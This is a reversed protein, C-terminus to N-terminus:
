KDASTFAEGAKVPYGLLFDKVAMRKKGEPQVELIKLLGRGTQVYFADRDVRVITGPQADKETVPQSERGATPEGDRDM